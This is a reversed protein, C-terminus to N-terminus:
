IDTIWSSTVYKSCTNHPYTYFPNQFGLELQTWKMSIKFFRGTTDHRRYHMMLLKTKEIGKVQWNGYYSYGGYMSPGYLACKSCNRQISRAHFLVPTIYKDLEHCQKQNLCHIPAVYKISKSLYANYSVLNDEAVLFSTTVKSNWDQVKKMLM